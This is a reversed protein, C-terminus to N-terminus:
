HYSQFIVGFTKIPSPTIEPHNHAWHVSTNDDDRCLVPVAPHSRMWAWVARKEAGSHESVQVVTGATLWVASPSSERSPQSRLERDGSEEPSSTSRLSM